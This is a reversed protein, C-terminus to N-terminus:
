AGPCLEENLAMEKIIILLKELNKYSSDENDVYDIEPFRSRL